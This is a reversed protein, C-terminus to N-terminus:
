VMKHEDTTYTRAHTHTRAHSAYSHPASEGVSKIVYLHGHDWRPTNHFWGPKRILRDEVIRARSTSVHDDGGNPSLEGDVENNDEYNYDNCSDKAEQHNPDESKGEEQAQKDRGEFGILVDTGNTSLNKARESLLTATTRFLVKSHAKVMSESIIGVHSYSRVDM